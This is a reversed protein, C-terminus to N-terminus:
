LVLCVSVLWFANCFMRCMIIIIKCSWLIVMGLINYLSERCPITLTSHQQEDEAVQVRCLEVRDGADRSHPVCDASM